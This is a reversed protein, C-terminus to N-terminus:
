ATFINVNQRPLPLSAQLTRHTVEPEWLHDLDSGFLDSNVVSLRRQASFWRGGVTVRGRPLFISIHLQIFFLGLPHNVCPPRPPGPWVPPQHLVHIFCLFPDEGPKIPQKYARISSKNSLYSSFLLLTKISSSRDIQEILDASALDGNLIWIGCSVFRSTRSTM